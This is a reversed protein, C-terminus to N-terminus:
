EIKATCRPKCGSCTRWHSWSSVMTRVIIWFVILATIFVNLFLNEFLNDIGILVLMGGIPFLVNLLVRTFGKAVQGPFVLMVMLVGILVPQPSKELSLGPLFYATSFVMASVGGLFLGTCAACFVHGGIKVVHTSFAECVPHHGEIRRRPSASGGTKGPFVRSCTEPSVSAFVGALCVANFVIWTLTKRSSPDAQVQPPNFVITLVIILSALYVAVSVAVLREFSRLAKVM